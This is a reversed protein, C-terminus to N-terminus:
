EQVRAIDHVYIKTGAIDSVLLGEIEEKSNYSSRLSLVTKDSQEMNGLSAHVLSSKLTAIVQGIDLGFSEIKMTDLEISLSNEYGGIIDIVTTDPVLKLEEKITNAISRLYIGTERERLGTGTYSLAFSVQPLEEPDISKIVIDQVGFPRLDYNSYMKDYLRTKAIEQSVGVKFTAMVSTFNDSSYSMIKDIGELEKIKNELSKAVFQSAETSEYGNVPIQINFAPAVISPNYQKPLMMYAAVGFFAIITILVITIKENELFFRAFKELM